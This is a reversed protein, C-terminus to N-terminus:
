CPSADRGESLPYRVDAVESNGSREDFVVFPASKSVM